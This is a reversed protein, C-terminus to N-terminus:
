CDEMYFDCLMLTSKKNIKKAERHKERSDVTNSILKKKNNNNMQSDRFGMDYILFFFPFCTVYLQTYYGKFLYKLLSKFLTM